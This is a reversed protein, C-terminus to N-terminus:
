LNRITGAVPRGSSAAPGPPDNGKYRSRARPARFDQPFRCENQARERGDCYGCCCHRIPDYFRQAHRTKAQMRFLPLSCSTYVGCSPSVDRRGRTERRLSSSPSRACYSICRKGQMHLSGATKHSDRLGERETHTHTDVMPTTSGCVAQAIMRVSQKRQAVRRGSRSSRGGQGGGGGARIGHRGRACLSRNM